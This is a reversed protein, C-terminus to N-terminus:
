LPRDPSTWEVRHRQHATILLYDGAGLEHVVEGIRLKARGQLVIVWEHQDQDYWFDAPSCHGHSVIREIRVHSSEALTTIVEDPMSHPLDSFLNTVARHM